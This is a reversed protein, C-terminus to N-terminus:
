GSAWKELVYEGQVNEFSLTLYVFLKLIWVWVCCPRPVNRVAQWIWTLHVHFNENKSSAIRLSM